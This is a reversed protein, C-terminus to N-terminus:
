LRFSAILPSIIIEFQGISGSPAESDNRRISQEECSNATCVKACRGSIAAWNPIILLPCFKATM